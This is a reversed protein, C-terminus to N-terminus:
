GDSRLHELIAGSAGADELADALVALRGNNLTGSPLNRNDYAAQALSLVTPNLWTSDLLQPRFPNGVIERFIGMLEKEAEKIVNEWAEEESDNLYDLGTANGIGHAVGQVVAHALFPGEMESTAGTACALTQETPQGEVARSAQITNEWAHRLE